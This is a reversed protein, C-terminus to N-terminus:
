VLIATAAVAATTKSVSSCSDADLVFIQLTLNKVYENQKIESIHRFTLPFLPPSYLKRLFSLFSGLTQIWSICSFQEKASCYICLLQLLIILM